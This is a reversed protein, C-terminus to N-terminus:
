ISRSRRIVVGVEDVIISTPPLLKTLTVEVERVRAHQQLVNEAILSGLREVTRCRVAENVALVTGAVGVYNVTDAVDDTQHAEEDVDLSLDVRFRHGIVQEEDAVGHYGYFQLGRVFVTSM